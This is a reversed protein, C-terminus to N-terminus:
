LLEKEVEERAIKIESQIDNKSLPKFLNILKHIAEDPNYESQFAITPEGDLLNYLKRRIIFERLADRTLEAKSTYGLRRVVEQITKNLSKDIKM